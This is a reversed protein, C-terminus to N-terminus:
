PPTVQVPPAKPAQQELYPKQYAVGKEGDQKMGWRIRVTSIRGIVATRVAVRGEAFTRACTRYITPERGVASATADLAVVAFFAFTTAM